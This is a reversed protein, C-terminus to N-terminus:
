KTWRKYDKEASDWYGTGDSPSMWINGSAKKYTGLQPMDTDIPLSRMRKNCGKRWAKQEGPQVTCWKHIPKKRRSRSM